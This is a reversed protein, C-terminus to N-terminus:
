EKKGLTKVMGTTTAEVYASYVGWNGFEQVLAPSKLFQDETTIQKQEPPAQVHEVPDIGDSDLQEKMGVRITKEAQIIQVAAQEGTTKGDFKLTNILAEHGPIAQDEVSKIRECEATKGRAEAEKQSEKAGESFGSAKGDKLGATKGEDYVAQYIEPYRTKFDNINM